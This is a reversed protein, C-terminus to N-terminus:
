EEEPPEAYPKRELVANHLRELMEVQSPCWNAKAMQDCQILFEYLSNSAITKIIKELENKTLTIEQEDPMDVFDMIKKM